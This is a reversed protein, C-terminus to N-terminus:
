RVYSALRLVKPLNDSFTQSFGRECGGMPTLYTAGDDVNENDIPSCADDTYTIMHTENAGFTDDDDLRLGTQKSNHFFSMSNIEDLSNDVTANICTDMLFTVNYRIPMSCNHEYHFHFTVYKYSSTLTAKYDDDRGMVKPDTMHASAQGYLLALCLAVVPLLMVRM